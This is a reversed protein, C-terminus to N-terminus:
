VVHFTAHNPLLRATKRRSMLLNEVSDRMAVVLRLVYGFAM